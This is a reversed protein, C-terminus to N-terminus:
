KSIDKPSPYILYRYESVKRGTAHEYAEIHRDRQKEYKSMLLDETEDAGQPKIDVIIDKQYDAYDLRVTGGDPHNLVAEIDFDKGKQRGSKEESGAIEKEWRAHEETGAMHCFSRRASADKEFTSVGEKTRRDAERWYPDTKDLTTQMERQLQRREPETLNRSRALHEFRDPYAQRERHMKEGKDGAWSSDRVRSSTTRENDEIGARSLTTETETARMRSNRRTEAARQAETRQREQLMKQEMLRDSNEVNKDSKDM